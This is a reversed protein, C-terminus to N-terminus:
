LVNVNFDEGYVDDGVEVIVMVECMVFIFKIVIDFCLDVILLLCIM